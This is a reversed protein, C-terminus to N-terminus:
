YIKTGADDDLEQSQGYKPQAAVISSSWYIVGGQGEEEQTCVTEQGTIITIFRSYSSNRRQRALHLSGFYLLRTHVKSSSLQSRCEAAPQGGDADDDQFKEQLGRQKNM